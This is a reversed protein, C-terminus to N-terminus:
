FITPKAVKEWDLGRRIREPLPGEGRFTAYIVRAESYDAPVEIGDENRYPVPFFDDLSTLTAACLKGQWRPPDQFEHSRWDPPPTLLVPSEWDRWVLSLQIGLREISELEDRHTEALEDTCYEPGHLEV